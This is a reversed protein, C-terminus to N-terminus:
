PIEAVPHPPGSGEFDTVPQSLIAQATEAVAPRVPPAALDTVAQSLITLDQLYALYFSRMRWVNVSSFGRMEPFARQLDSALRDVIGKGWGQEQQREVILRGIDWYLRILERNVSLMAKTQVQRIRRKLSELFAGYDSPLGAM